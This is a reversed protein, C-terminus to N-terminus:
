VNRLGTGRMETIKDGAEYGLGETIIGDGADDEVSHSHLHTGWMMKSKDGVDVEGPVRVYM